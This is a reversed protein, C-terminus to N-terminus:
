KAREREALGCKEVADAVGNWIRRKRLAGAHTTLRGVRRIQAHPEYACRLEVVGDDRIRKLPSPDANANANANANADADHMQMQEQM